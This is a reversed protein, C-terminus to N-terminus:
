LAAIAAAATIITTAVQVVTDAVSVVQGITNLTQASAKLKTTAAALQAVAAAAGPAVNNFAMGIITNIQVNIQDRRHVVLMMNNWDQTGPTASLGIIRANLDDRAANLQALSDDQLTM